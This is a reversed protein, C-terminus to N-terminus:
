QTSDTEDLSKLQRLSKSVQDSDDEDGYKFVQKRECGSWHDINNTTLKVM